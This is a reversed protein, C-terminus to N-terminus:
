APEDGGGSLAAPRGAFLEAHTEFFEVLVDIATRVRASDRVTEHYVLWGSATAVPDPFIRVLEPRQSAAFCPIVGIGGGSSLAQGAVETNDVRMISTATGRHEEMWRPGAVRHLAEIYLVLRHKSLDEVTAPTGSEAVYASSAFVGWGVELTRRCVLGPDSPKFMRIAVDAEGRALDVTRNDASLELSLLPHKALLPPLMRNLTTVFGSPCTVRVSGAVELKASRIARTADAVTSELAEAASLAIRGQATWSFERGGRVVLCTGLTEELAALRRSVTSHDVGLVRAAGAVSGGRALALIVKFDSWEPDHNVLGQRGGRPNKCSARAGIPM